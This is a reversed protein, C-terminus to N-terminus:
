AMMFASMSANAKGDVRYISNQSQDWSISEARRGAYLLTGELRIRMKGCGAEHFGEWSEDEDMTEEGFLRVRKIGGKGIGM